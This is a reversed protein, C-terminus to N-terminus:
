NRANWRDKFNDLKSNLSDMKAEITTALRIWDERQVYMLPLGAIFERYEKELERRKDAEREINSSIRILDEETQQHRRDGGKLARDILYKIVGILLGSWALVLASLVALMQWNIEATM